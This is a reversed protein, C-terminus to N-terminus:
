SVSQVKIESLIQDRYQSTAMVELMSLYQQRFSETCVFVVFM